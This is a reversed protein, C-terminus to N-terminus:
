LSERWTISGEIDHAATGANPMWCLVIEDVTGDIQAGLRIANEIAADTGGRGNQTSGSQAFGGQMITGGTVTNATAGTATMISSNTENAFTFTSAVTPNLRLTWEGSESATQIQISVIMMDITSSINAAKLKMGLIAYIVNDTSCVVATGATSKYRISGRRIQGGESIVTCCITDMTSAGGSGDNEISFRLPLNPTSMYVTSLDNSHNFNHCTILMGDLVFGVRVRGIGLWEYDFFCIHNKSEDLIIGSPGSGDLKDVNWASQAVTTDVPSGSTSSRIVANLIGDKSQFFIGNDDDHPGVNVEIGSEGSNIVSTMYVLQSKGSQYNFRMLTQRVRKGATSASVALQSRALAVSHTSSTGSGSVEQDDWILPQNDYIQKSDFLTEPNSVRWRGFADISTSDQSKISSNQLITM